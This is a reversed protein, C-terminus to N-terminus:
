SSGVDKRREGEEKQAVRIERWCGPLHAGILCPRLVLIGM